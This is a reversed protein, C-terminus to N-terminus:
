LPRLMRCAPAYSMHRDRGVLCFEVGWGYGAFGTVTRLWYVLEHRAGDSLYATASCYHIVTTEPPWLRTSAPRPGTIAAMRVGTHWYQAETRDFRRTIERLVSREACPGVPVAVSPAKRVMPDAAEATLPLALWFAAILAILCPRIM